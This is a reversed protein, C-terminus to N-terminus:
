EGHDGRGIRMSCVGCRPRNIVYWIIAFFRSLWISLFYLVTPTFFTLEPLLFGLGPCTAVLLGGYKLKHGSGSRREDTGM